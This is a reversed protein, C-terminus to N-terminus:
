SHPLQQDAHPSDDYMHIYYCVITMWEGSPDLGRKGAGVHALPGDEHSTCLEGGWVYVFGKQIVPPFDEDLIQGSEVWGDVVRLAQQNGSVDAVQGHFVPFVLLLPCALLHFIQCIGDLNWILIKPGDEEMNEVEAIIRFISAEWRQM